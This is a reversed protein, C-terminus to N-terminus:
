RDRMRKWLQVFPYIAWFVALMFFYGCKPIWNCFQKFRETM